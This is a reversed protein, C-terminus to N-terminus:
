TLGRIVRELVGRWERGLRKYNIRIRTHGLTVGDRL